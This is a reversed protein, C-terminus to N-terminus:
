AESASPRSGQPRDRPLWPPFTLILLVAMLAAAALAIILLVHYGPGAGFCIPIFLIVVCGGMSVGGEGHTELLLLIPAAMAVAIGAVFLALGIRFLRGM